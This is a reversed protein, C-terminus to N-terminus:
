HDTSDIKFDNIKTFEFTCGDAFTRASNENNQAAAHISLSAADKEYCYSWLSKMLLSIIMQQSHYM